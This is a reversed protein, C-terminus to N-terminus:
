AEALAAVRTAFLAAGAGGAAVSYMFRRRNMAIGGQINEVVRNTRALRPTNGTLRTGQRSSFGSARERATMNRRRRQHSPLRPSPSRRAKLHSQCDIACSSPNFRKRSYNGDIRGGVAYIRGDLAAAALHDRATPVYALATWKNAAPDYVEHAPTNR